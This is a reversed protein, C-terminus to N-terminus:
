LYGQEDLWEQLAQLVIDDPEMRWEKMAEQLGHRLESTLDISIIREVRPKKADKVGEEVRAPFVM